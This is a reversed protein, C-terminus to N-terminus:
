LPSKLKTKKTSPFFFWAVNTSKIWETHECKIHKQEESRKKGEQETLTVTRPPCAASLPAALSSSLPPRNLFLFPQHQGFIVTERVGNQWPKLISAARKERRVLPSLSPLCLSLDSLSQQLGLICQHCQLIPSKKEHKNLTTSMNKSNISRM